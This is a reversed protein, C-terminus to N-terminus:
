LKMLDEAIEAALDYAQPCYGTRDVFEHDMGQYLITRVDVGQRTLKRSFAEGQLRLYDYECLINLTKPLYSLDEACLPAALPDKVHEDKGTYLFPMEATMAKLSLAAGVALQDDDPIEYESMKWRYDELRFNDVLVGPYVLAEYKIRSKKIKGADQAEKELMCCGIALTGGASDGGVAIKEKDVGFEEAHDYLYIMTDYCDHLGAPFYHEPALRYDVGVVVAGAMEAILKCFNEVVKTSGAIFAGGHIFLLLPKKDMGGVPTYVYIYTDGNRTPIVQKKTVVETETVDFSPAAPLKRVLDVPIEIYEALPNGKEEATKRDKYVRPDLVTGQMPDPIKKVYMECDHITKMEVDDSLKELLAKNEKYYERM